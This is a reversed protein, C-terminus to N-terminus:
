ECCPTCVSFRWFELAESRVRRVSSLLLGVDRGAGVMMVRPATTVCTLYWIYGIHPKEARPKVCCGGPHQTNSSPILCIHPHATAHPAGPKAPWSKALASTMPPMKLSLHHLSLHTSAQALAPSALLQTIATLAWCLLLLDKSYLLLHM